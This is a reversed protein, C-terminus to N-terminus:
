IWSFISSYMVKIVKSTKGTELNSTMELKEKFFWSKPFTSLVVTRPNM